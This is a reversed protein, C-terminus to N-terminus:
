GTGQPLDMVLEDPRSPPWCSFHEFSHAIAFLFARRASARPILGSRASPRAWCTVYLSSRRAKARALAFNQVMTSFLKESYTWM